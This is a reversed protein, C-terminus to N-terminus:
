EEEEIVLSQEEENEEDCMECGDEAEADEEEAFADRYLVKGQKDTTIVEGPIVELADDGYLFSLDKMRKERDKMARQEAEDLDNAIQEVKELIHPLTQPDYPLLDSLEGIKSLVAELIFRVSRAELENKTEPM